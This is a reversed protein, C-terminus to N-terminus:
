PSGVTTGGKNIAYRLAVPTYTNTGKEYVLIGEAGGTGTVATLVPGDEVTGDPSIKYSHREPSEFRFDLYVTVNKTICGLQDPNDVVASKYFVGRRKTACDANLIEEAVGMTDKIDQSKEGTQVDIEQLFAEFIFIDVAAAGVALAGIVAFFFLSVGKRQM